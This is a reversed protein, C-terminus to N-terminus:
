CAALETLYRVACRVGCRVAGLAPQYSALPSGSTLWGGRPQPQPMHVDAPPPQQPAARSMM